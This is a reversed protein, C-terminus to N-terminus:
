QEITYSEEIMGKGGIWHRHGCEWGNAGIVDQRSEKEEKKKQYCGPLLNASTDIM